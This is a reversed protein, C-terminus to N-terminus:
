KYYSQIGEKVAALINTMNILLQNTGLSYAGTTNNGKHPNKYLKPIWYLPSFDDHEKSFM